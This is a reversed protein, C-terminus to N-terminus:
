DTKWGTRLALAKADEKFREPLARTQLDLQHFSGLWKADKVRTSKCLRTQSRIEGFWLVVFCNKIVINQKLKRKPTKFLSLIIKLDLRQDMPPSTDFLNHCFYWCITPKGRLLHIWLYIEPVHPPPIALNQRYFASRFRMESVTVVLFLRTKSVFRKSVM